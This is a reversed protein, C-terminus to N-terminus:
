ERPLPETSLIGLSKGPVRDPREPDPKEEVERRRAQWQREAEALGQPNRMADAVVRMLRPVTSGLDISGFNLNEYRRLSAVRKLM